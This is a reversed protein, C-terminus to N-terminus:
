MSWEDHGRFTVCPALQSLSGLVFLGIVAHMGVCPCQLAIEIQKDIDDPHQEAAKDMEESLTEFSGAM